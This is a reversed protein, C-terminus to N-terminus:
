RDSLGENVLQAVARVLNAGSPSTATTIPVSMRVPAPEFQPALAWLPAATHELQPSAQPPPTRRLQTLLQEVSEAVMAEVHAENVM